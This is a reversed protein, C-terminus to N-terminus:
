TCLNNFHCQNHMVFTPNLIRPLEFSIDIMVQVVAVNGIIMKWIERWSGMKGMNAQTSLRSALCMDLNGKLGLLPPVLILLSTVDRFVAWNQFGPTSYM